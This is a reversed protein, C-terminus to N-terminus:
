MGRLSLFLDTRKPLCKRQHRRQRWFVVLVVISRETFTNCQWLAKCSRACIVFIVFPTHDSFRNSYGHHDFNVHQFCTHLPLQSSNSGERVQEEAQRGARLVWPCFQCPKSVLFNRRPLSKRRHRRQRVHYWHWRTWFMSCCVWCM